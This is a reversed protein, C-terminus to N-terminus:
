CPTLVGGSCKAHQSPTSWGFGECAAPPVCLVPWRPFYQPNRVFNFKCKGQSGAIEGGPFKGLLFLLKPECECENM